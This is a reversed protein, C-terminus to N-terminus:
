PARSASWKAPAAGDAKIEGAMREGSVTAEFTENGGSTRPLVFRVRTGDIRGDKLAVAKGDRTVKGEIVQFAQDIELQFRAGNAGALM